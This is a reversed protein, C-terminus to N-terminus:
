RVFRDEQGYIDSPRLITACPFEELVAQEGQYKSSLFKSGGKLIYSTPHEACNLASVHIFREVGAEKALRALRRAGDVHVDKFKFNKTEWDRGVLNIVVNSYKIAKRISTEDRLDFPHFFVQGLDGVLKLRM